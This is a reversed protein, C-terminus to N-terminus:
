PDLGGIGPGEAPRAQPELNEDFPLVHRPNKIKHLAILTMQRLAGSRSSTCAVCDGACTHPLPPQTASQGSATFVFGFRALVRLTM